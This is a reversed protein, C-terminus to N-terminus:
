SIRESSLLRSIYSVCPIAANSGALPAPPAGASMSSMSLSINPIPPPIPPPKGPIPPPMGPPGPLFTGRFPRFTSCSYSTVNSSNYLPLVVLNEFVLFTTQWCHLPEPPFVPAFDCAQLTHLPLPLM